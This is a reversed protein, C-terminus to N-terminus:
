LIWKNLNFLNNRFSNKPVHIMVANHNYIKWRIFRSWNWASEFLIFHVIDDNRRQCENKSECLCLMGISFPWLYIWVYCKWRKSCFFSIKSVKNWLKKMEWRADRCRFKEMTNNQIRQESHTRREIECLM